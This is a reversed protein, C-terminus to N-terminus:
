MPLFLPPHNRITTLHRCRPLRYNARSPQPPVSVTLDVLQVLACRLCRHTGLARAIERHLRAQVFTAATEGGHGDFVGFCCLRESCFHTRMHVTHLVSRVSTVHRLSPVVDKLNMTILSRDQQYTKKGKDSVPLSQNLVWGFVRGMRAHALVTSAPPAWQRPKQTRPRKLM